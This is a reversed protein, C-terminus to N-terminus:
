LRVKSGKGDRKGLKLRNLHVEKGKYRIVPDQGILYVEELQEGEALRIGRVGKSAKKMMPIEELLFRLFVGNDTQLVVDKQGEVPLVRVLTDGEQLKTAAVTRNNTEFESAPVQKVSAM